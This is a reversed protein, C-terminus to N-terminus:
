SARKLRTLRAAVDGVRFVKQRGEYRIFHLGARRGIKGDRRRKEDNEYTKRIREATVEMGHLTRLIAAVESPPRVEDQIDHKMWDRIESVTRVEGGPLAVTKQGRTAYIEEGAHIGLFIRDDGRDISHLIETLTDTVEQTFDDAAPHQALWEAHGWIWGAISTPNDDCDVTAPKEDSIMRAWSSLTAHLDSTAELLRPNIPLRDRSTGGDLSQGAPSPEAMHLTDHVRDLLARIEEASM